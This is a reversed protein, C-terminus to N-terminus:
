AADEQKVEVAPMKNVLKSFNRMSALHTYILELGDNNFLQALDESSIAKLKERNVAM